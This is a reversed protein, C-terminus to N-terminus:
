YAKNPILQEKNEIRYYYATDSTAYIVPLKTGIKNNIIPYIEYRSELSSNLSDWFVTAIRSISYKDSKKLDVYGIITFKGDKRNKRYVVFEDYKQWAWISILNPKNRHLEIYSLVVKDGKEVENSISNLRLLENSSSCAIFFLIIAFYLYRM